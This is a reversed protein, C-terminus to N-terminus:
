LVSGSLVTSLLCDKAMRKCAGESCAELPKEQLIVDLTLTLYNVLRQKYGHIIAHKGSSVAEIEEWAGCGEPM